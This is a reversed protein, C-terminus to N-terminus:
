VSKCEAATMMSVRCATTKSECLRKTLQDAPNENGPVFEPRVLGLQICRRILHYRVSIHRTQRNTSGNNSITIASQNDCRIRIPETYKVGLEEILMSAYMISKCVEAM